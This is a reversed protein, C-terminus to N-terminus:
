KNETEFKKMFGILAKVGEAPMANYISARMGGVSRHGALTTLGAAAAEKVFKKDLAEDGTVFIVNMMSRDRPAVPNSFLKSNDIHDYLWQAKEENMKQIAKVGGLGKLWELVLKMMYISYCPPTNHLSDEAAQVKYNLMHPTIPMAGGILSEKVIVVTVGSPGINKQAGAYIVGFKSVDYEESLISSSMDTVLPSAGTEPLKVFRTGYITNNVTIHCFDAGETLKFEDPIYTFNDAESTAAINAKLYRKGEDAAKKAFSGTVVYDATGNRYLNLPVASFQQTAGGQLLLVKYGEPVNM